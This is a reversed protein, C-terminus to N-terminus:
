KKYNPYDKTLYKKAVEHYTMPESIPQKLIRSADSATFTFDTLEAPVGEPQPILIDPLPSQAMAKKLRPLFRQMTTDGVVENENHFFYYSYDIPTGEPHGRRKKNIFETFSKTIYHNVRAKDASINFSLMSSVPKHYENVSAGTVRVYHNSGFATFDIVKDPRVISKVTHNLKASHSTFDETVLGQRRSYLHNNGYNLWHLSVESVDAFEKLFERMNQAQLPVLYEDLDIIALWTTEPGYTKVIKDYCKLQQNVGPQAIYTILGSKIYPSLYEKTGDTSENDCLYFHEVGQLKHYEIWEKIYPKENKM